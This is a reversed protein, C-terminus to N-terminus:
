SRSAFRWQCKSDRPQPRGCMTGLATLFQFALKLQLCGLCLDIKVSRTTASVAYEILSGSCAEVLCYRLTHFPSRTFRVVTCALVTRGSSAGLGGGPWWRIM